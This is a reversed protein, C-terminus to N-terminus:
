IVGLNSLARHRQASYNAGKFYGAVPIQTQSQM